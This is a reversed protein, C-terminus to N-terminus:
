FRIKDGREREREREREQRELEMDPNDQPIRILNMHQTCENMISKVKQYNYPRSPMDAVGVVDIEMEDEEKEERLDETTM